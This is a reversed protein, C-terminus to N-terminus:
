LGNPLVSVEFEYSYLKKNGSYYRKEEEISGSPRHAQHFTVNMAKQDKKLVEFVSKEHM